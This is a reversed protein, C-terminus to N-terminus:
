KRYSHGFVHRVWWYVWGKFVQIALQLHRTQTWRKNRSCPSLGQWMDKADRGGKSKLTQNILVFKLTILLNSTIVVQSFEHVLLYIQSCQGSPLLSFSISFSLSTLLYSPDLLTGCVCVRVCLVYLCVYFIKSSFPSHFSATILFTITSFKGSAFVFVQFKPSLFCM